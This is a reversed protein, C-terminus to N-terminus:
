LTFVLFLAKVCAQREHVLSGEGLLVLHFHSEFLVLVIYLVLNLQASFFSLLLSAFVKDELLRM